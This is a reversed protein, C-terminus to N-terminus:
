WTEQVVQLYKRVGLHVVLFAHQLIGSVLDRSAVLALQLALTAKMAELYKHVGLPLTMRLFAVRELVM